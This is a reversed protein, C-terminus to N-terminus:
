SGFRLNPFQKGGTFAMMADDSRGIFSSSMENQAVAAYLYGWDIRLDDGSKQLVPQEKSGMKLVELKQVSKREWTVPQTKTDVTALGSIEFYLEASHNMKDKSALSWTVYSLPRTVLDLDEVLLPSLFSIKIEVGDQFFSFTTQTPTLEAGTSQAAPVYGPSKGM